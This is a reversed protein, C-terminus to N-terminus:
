SRRTHRPLTGRMKQRARVEWLVPTNYCDAFCRNLYTSGDAGCVPVDKASQLLLRERNAGKIRWPGTAMM